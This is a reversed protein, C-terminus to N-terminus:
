KYWELIVRMAHIAQEQTSFHLTLDFDKSTKPKLCWMDYYSPDLFIEFEISKM